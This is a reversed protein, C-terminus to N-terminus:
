TEGDLNKSGSMIDEFIECEERKIGFIQEISLIQNERNLEKKSVRIYIKNKIM